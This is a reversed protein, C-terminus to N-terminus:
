TIYIKILSVVFNTNWIIIDTFSDNVINIDYYIPYNNLLKTCIM